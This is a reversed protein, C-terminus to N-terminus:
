YPGMNQKTWKKSFFFIISRPKCDDSACGGVMFLLLLLMLLLLWLVFLPVFEVFNAVLSSWWGAIADIWRLPLDDVVDIILLATATGCILILGVPFVKTLPSNFSFKISNEIISAVSPSVFPGKAVDMAEVMCSLDVRFEIWAWFCLCVAVSKFTMRAFLVTTASLMKTCCKVVLTLAKKWRDSLFYQM